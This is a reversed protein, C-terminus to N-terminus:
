MRLTDIGAVNEIYWRYAERMDTEIHTPATWGLAALRSVDMVKRPMGDPKIRDFTFEGNWGVMGAISQGLELITM